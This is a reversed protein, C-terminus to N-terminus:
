PRCRPLNQTGGLNAQVVQGSPLKVNLDCLYLNLWSGYSFARTAINLARPLKKLGSDLLKKNDNVVGVVTNLSRISSDIAPKTHKLVDNAAAVFADINGVSTSLVDRDGALGGALERLNTILQGLAQDRTAVTSVVSDLNDIVRGIVADRQALTGTLSATSKLLSDITGGEGQFTAILQAALKNVDSPQLTEFVPRFGNFLVTLDLAPSTHDVGITTGAKLVAGTLTGDEVAVYRRGLLDRYRIRFFTSQRVDLDKEISVQVLAQGDNTVKANDVRGVRVGAIRVDDGPQLGFADTFLAKYSHTPRGVSNDVTVIVFTTTVLTLAVFALLKLLTANKSLWKSM